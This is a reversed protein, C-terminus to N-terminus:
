AASLVEKVKAALKNVPFPKEIFYLGEELITHHAVVNATYGSMFLTKIDPYRSTLKDAFKRGNMEPMIIDTILLDLKGDQAEALAMADSPTAATLVTYGLKELMIRTINLVVSEDELVLITEGHGKQLVPTKKETGAADAKESFRPFYIRVTTGEGPESYVNVFGNNQKVIGYVTPMGLGTGKGIEKTTFFPEFLNELVNKDMGCGNDSVALMVFQGSVFGAHNDCYEKDFEINKTEITIKGIDAIADRANVVLNALIQDIQSFDMKIMWVKQGPKWLLDINEGILRQLIKFMSSVGDNLNMPVPSITQKRAFALLKRVIVASRKGADYIERANDHMPDSPPLLDTMMEAYGNIITLMNNFDHAVGGALRGVSEMKQAQHLQAQLEEKEAEAKKRETIDRAVGRFGIAEGGANKMLSVSTDVYCKEGNKRIFEWDFGKLPASTTAVQNYAIFVREANERDMYERYNMGMLEVSPYGLIRCLSDNFFTFNGALDVEFYGDEINNLISRYKEESEELAEEMQRRETIDICSAISRTTGSIMDVSLLLDLKEGNRAIFRCEYQHLAAYRDQRRLYHNKKMWVADDPHFFETWSKKGELAQKSYGSLKEFNSNVLSITTDEEIIFMATGSTEFLTRYYSESQRLAEEMKRRGTVDRASFVIRHPRGKENTVVKGTTELWLFAGDRCRYRYEVTRADGTAMLTHLEELVHPLDEPHVFDIVNKGILFGPEYGLTEYAKGAFIFNGELDTLAVMDLMNETVISWLQAQHRFKEVEKQLQKVHIERELNEGQMEHIMKRIEEHTMSELAPSPNSRSRPKGPDDKKNKM